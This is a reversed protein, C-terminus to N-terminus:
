WEKLESVDYVNFQTMKGKKIKNILGLEELRDIAALMIWSDGCIGKIMDITKLRDKNSKLINRIINIFTRNGSETFLREKENEYKYM